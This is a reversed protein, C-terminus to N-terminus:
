QPASSSHAAPLSIGHPQNPHHLHHLFHLALYSTSNECTNNTTSILAQFRVSGCSIILVIGVLLLMITCDKLGSFYSSIVGMLGRRCSVTMRPSHFIFDVPTIIIVVVVSANM